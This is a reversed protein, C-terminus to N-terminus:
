SFIQLGLRAVITKCDIDRRISPVCSNRQQPLSRGYASVQSSLSRARFTLVWQQGKESETRPRAAIPSAALKRGTGGYGVREGPQLRELAISRETDQLEDDNSARRFPDSS